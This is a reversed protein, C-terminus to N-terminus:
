LADSAGVAALHAEAAARARAEVADLEIDARSLRTLEATLRDRTARAESALRRNLATARELGDIVELVADLSRAGFLVALPEAEGNVYLHRLLTGINRHTTALSARIVAARTRARALSRELERRTAAIRETEARAQALTSESAFLELEASREARALAALSSAGPAGVAAGSAWGALLAALCPALYRARRNV